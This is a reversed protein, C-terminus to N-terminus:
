TWILRVQTVLKDSPYLNADDALYGARDNHIFFIYVQDKHIHALLFDDTSMVFTGLVGNLRDILMSRAHEHRPVRSTPAAQAQQALNAQAQNVAVQQAWVQQVAPSSFLEPPLGLLSDYDPKSPPSILKGLGFDSLGM